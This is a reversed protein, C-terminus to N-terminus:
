VFVLLVDSVDVLCKLRSDQSDPNKTKTLFNNFDGLIVTLIKTLKIKSFTRQFHPM